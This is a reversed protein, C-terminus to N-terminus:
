RKENVVEVLEAFWVKLTGDHRLVKLFSNGLDNTYMEVILGIEDIDMDGRKIVIDGLKM